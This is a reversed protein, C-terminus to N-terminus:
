AKYFGFYQLSVLKQILTIKQLSQIMDFMYDKLKYIIGTRRKEYNYYLSSHLYVTLTWLFFHLKIVNKGKKKESM